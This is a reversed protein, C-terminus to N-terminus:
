LVFCRLTHSISVPWGFIRTTNIATPILVKSSQLELMTGNPKSMTTFTTITIITIIINNMMIVTIIIINNMNYHHYHHDHPHPSPPDPHCSTHGSFALALSSPSSSLQSWPWSSSLSWLTWSSSLPTSWGQSQWSSWHGSSITIIIITSIIIIIALILIMEAITPIVLPRWPHGAILEQRPLWGVCAMQPITRMMKGMVVTRM